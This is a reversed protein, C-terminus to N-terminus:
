LEGFRDRVRIPQGSAASEYGAQVIALTRRESWATTPGEAVGAVNDAFAELEQAYDSLPETPYAHREPTTAEGSIVAYDDRGARLCGADGYLVYGEFDGLLRTECTQMVMVQLGSALTLLGSMTGELDRRQFSSAKHERLYVTDVEGLIFRLHAMAHIGHLMWTGTGGQEPRTLWARRGAYGFDPARFGTVLTAATLEGVHRGSRVIERLLKNRPKYPENEAVYLRVGNAEAAAIMRTADEVTLAMPKEVLVHKGAEVAAIALPPHLHHPTCLDVADVEPDALAQTVDTYTKTVGLVAAQQALHAADHDVLCAVQVKRGLERCAEVHRTGAWGVGVVAMRLAERARAAM